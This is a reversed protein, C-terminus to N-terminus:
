NENFHIMVIILALRKAALTAADPIRCPHACAIQSACSNKQLRLIHVRERHPAMVNDNRIDDLRFRRNNLRSWVRPKAPKGMIVDYVSVCAFGDLM